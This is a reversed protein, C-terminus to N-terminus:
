HLSIGSFLVTERDYSGDTANFEFEPGLVDTINVNTANSPGNNTVNITFNVLDNVWIDGTINAYKIVTFNNVPRVTIDTGNPTDTTNETSNVSAVNRFTGNTTVNVVVWLSVMEGNYLNGITWTVIDKGDVTTKDGTVNGGHYIVKMGEPLVDTINVNTANSPGLNTVNITFNVLDYVYINGTVNAYKIVTFNNVPKATIETRNAKQTSNEASTVSAVNEFTGNAKVKVVVWVERSTRNVLYDITWTVKHTDEDHSGGSSADIFEFNANLEDVINVNSANSPGNNTVTITFNVLDNVYGVNDTWNNAKVLTLNNVPTATIQTFNSSGTNNETSNIKATNTYTGNTKVKAVVWFELTTGNNMNGIVWRVVGNEEIGGESASVFEFVSNLEDTINVNTANSPGNNTVTITFNVLEGASCINGTLNNTKTITFNNVPLATVNEASANDNSPNTDNGWSTVNVSNAITGNNIVKVILILTATADKELEGITWIGTERDYGAVENTLELDPSLTENVKVDLATDPGHNTVNIEYKLSDGIYATTTNVWKTINLDVLPLVNFEDWNTSGLHTSNSGIFATANYVGPDLLTTLTQSGEGNTVTVTVTVTETANITVTVTGSLKNGNGDTLNVKITPYQYHTIDDVTINVITTNISISDALYTYYTDELHYINFSAIPVGDGEFNYTFKGDGDTVVTATSISPARLRSDYKEITINQGAERESLEPVSDTTTVGDADWYTVNTFSPHSNSESWISNLLNDYGVFVGSLYHTGNAYTGIEKNIFKNSHAQNDLLTVNELNYTSSKAYIASGQTANNNTINTNFM